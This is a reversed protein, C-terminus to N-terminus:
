RRTGIPALLLRALDPTEKILGAARADVLFSEFTRLEVDNTFQMRPWCREILAEPMPRKALTALEGQVTAKAEAPHEQMWRTLEEHAARLKDVLEANETAFATRAVFVTTVADKEAFFIKGGGELELRSVWPEVTWAADLTGNQFFSLQDPNETPVVRVDGGTLTVKMGKGTLWARCAVDQTNGLQPTAIRRGRFQEATTIAAAERVVLASGGNTAGAIVRVEDGRTRAHANLAPNPGVYTADLSGAILSEMASPGANFVFWQVQFGPGLHKEFIGQGKRTAAHAILGHAHTVNPFHGLRVVKTAAAPPTGASPDQRCAVALVALLALNCALTTRRALLNM